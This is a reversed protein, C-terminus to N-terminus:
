KKAIIISERLYPNNRLIKQQQSSTTLRRAVRIEAINYGLNELIKALLLDTAIPVNGYASNGVICAISQMNPFLETLNTFTNQMDNFYNLVMSEMKSKGWTKEWDIQSTITELEPICPETRTTTTPYNKNLHSSLSQERLTKLEPYDKIFDLMWLEIKYVETYDFCNAYPPSFIASKVNETLETANDQSKICNENDNRNRADALFIQYNPNKIKKEKNKRTLSIVDELMIYYKKELTPILKLPKKNKPYKLGNGDKKAYSISELVCGLGILLFNRISDNNIELIEQKVKLLDDLQERFLKKTISLKPTEIYIEKEQYNTNLIRKIAKKLSQPRPYSQMKVKSLAALFPNVEFGAGGTRRNRAGVLTSGSGLFPDLVQDPQRAGFKKLLIEVLRSSYGEKLKFWRDFPHRNWNRPCVLNKFSSDHTIKFEKELQRYIKAVNKIQHKGHAHDLM